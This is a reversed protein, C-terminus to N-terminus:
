GGYAAKIILVHDGEHLTHGAWEPRHVLEDNVAVAMGGCGAPINDLSAVVAQLTANEEVVVPKNNVQINM